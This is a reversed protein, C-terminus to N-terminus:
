THARASDSRVRKLLLQLRTVSQRKGMNVGKLYAKEKDDIADPPQAIESILASILAELEAVIDLM